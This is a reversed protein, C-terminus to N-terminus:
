GDVAEVVERDETESPLVLGPRSLRASRKLSSCLFSKDAMLDSGLNPIMSDPSLPLTIFSTVTGDTSLLTLALESFWSSPAMFVIMSSSFLSLLGLSSLSLFCNTLDNLKSTSSSIQLASILSLSSNCLDTM